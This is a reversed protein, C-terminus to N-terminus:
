CIFHYYSYNKSLFYNQFLTVKFDLQPFIHTMLPNTRPPGPPHTSSNPQTPAQGPPQTSPKPRHTPVRTLHNPLVKHTPHPPHPPPHTPQTPKAVWVIPLVARWSCCGPQSKLNSSDNEYCKSCFGHLIISFSPRQSMHRWRFYRANINHSLNFSFQALYNWISISFFSIECIAKQFSLAECQNKFLFNLESM